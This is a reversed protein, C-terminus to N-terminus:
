FSIKKFNGYSSITIDRATDQGDVLDMKIELRDKPLLKGLRDSWEVLAVGYRRAEDWGLELVDAEKEELRYLDFHWISIDDLEYTQVLTFTPSPVELEEGALACILHRAFATKGAGLTGVLTVVDGTKLSPALISAFEALEAENNIRLTKTTM